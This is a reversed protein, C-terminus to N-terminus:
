GEKILKKHWEVSEDFSMLKKLEEDLNSPKVVILWAEYPNENLMEPKEVVEGNVSEVTGSLPAVLDSVAKVSEVTGFPEGQTVEDGESPLEVFVIERLQKQAYDTIGVKAKGDEVKVWMYDESYYLGELVEYGDVKVM